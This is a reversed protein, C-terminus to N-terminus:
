RSVRRAPFKLHSRSLAAGNRCRGEHSHPHIHGIRGVPPPRYRRLCCVAFFALWIGAPLPVAAVVIRIEDATIQLAIRNPHVADTFLLMDAETESCIFPNEAANLNVTCPQKVSAFPYDGPNDQFDQTLAAADYDIIRVGLEDEIMELNSKLELNFRATAASAAGSAFAVEAETAGNLALLTTYTPTGGLDPLKAVLFDDFQGLPSTVLRTIGDTVAKAAAVVDAEAFNAFLDNAGLWIAVLPNNGPNPPADGFAIEPALREPLPTDAFM